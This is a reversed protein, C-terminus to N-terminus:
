GASGRLRLHNRPRPRCAAREVFRNDGSLRSHLRQGVRHDRQFAYRALRQIGYVRRRLDCRRKGPDTNGALRGSQCRSGISVRRRHRVGTRRNHLRVARRIRLRPQARFSRHQAFAVAASGEEIILTGPQRHGVGAGKTATVVTGDTLTLSASEPSPVAPDYEGVLLYQMTYRGGGALTASTPVTSPFVRLTNLYLDQTM